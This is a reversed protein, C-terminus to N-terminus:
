HGKGHGEAPASTQGAMAPTDTGLIYDRPIDAFAVVQGGNEKAFAEAKARDAFPVAEMQGMGGRRQSGIVYLAARADTWAGNGPQDWSEAKGMDTVYIGRLDKPEDPLMTFAITDRASSFWVPKDKGAVFIQGKPGAHDALTMNCYHGVAERTMEAPPPAAAQQPEGCAGLLLLGVLLIRKM